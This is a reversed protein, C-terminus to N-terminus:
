LFSFYIIPILFYFLYFSLLGPIYSISKLWKLWKWTLRPQFNRQFFDGAATRNKGWEREGRASHRVLIRSFGLPRKMETTTRWGCEAGVERQAAAPKKSEREVNFYVVKWFIQRNTPSNNMMAYRLYGISFISGMGAFAMCGPMTGIGGMCWSNAMPLLLLRGKSASYRSSVTSLGLGLFFPLFFLKMQACTM